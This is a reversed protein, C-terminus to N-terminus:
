AGSWAAASGVRAAAGALVDVARTDALAGDVGRGDIGIAAGRGVNARGTTDAHRRPALRAVLWGVADSTKALATIRPAGALDASIGVAIDAFDADCARGIAGVVGAAIDALHATDARADDARRARARGLASAPEGHWVVRTRRVDDRGVVASVSLAE